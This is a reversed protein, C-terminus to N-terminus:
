AFRCVKENPDVFDEYLIDLGFETNSFPLYAMTAYLLVIYTVIYTFAPVPSFAIVPAIWVGTFALFVKIVTMYVAHDTTQAYLPHCRLSRFRDGTWDWVKYSPVLRTISLHRADNGILLFRFSMFLYLFAAVISMCLLRVHDTSTCEVSRYTDIVYIPDGARLHAAM